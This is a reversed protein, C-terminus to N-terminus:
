ITNLYLFLKQNSLEFTQMFSRSAHYSNPQAFVCVSASSDLWTNVLRPWCYFNVGSRWVANGREEEEEKWDEKEFFVELKCCFMLSVDRGHKEQFLKWTTVSLCRSVKLIVTQFSVQRAIMTRKKKISQRLAFSKPSLIKNSFVNLNRSGVNVCPCM